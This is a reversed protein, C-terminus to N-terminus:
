LLQRYYLGGTRPHDSPHDTLFEQIVESRRPADEITFYLLRFDGPMDRGAIHLPVSNLLASSKQEHCEVPFDIGKRDTLKGHKRCAACGISARVPCNRLQMLPLHGYVALGLPVTGGLRRLREMPLEFSATLSAVGLAAYFDVAQTNTVNLGFGGRVTLGM